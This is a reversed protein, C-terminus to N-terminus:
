YTQKEQQKKLVHNYIHKYTEFDAYFKDSNALKRVEEKFKDWFEPHCEERLEKWKQILHNLKNKPLHKYTNKLSTFSSFDDVITSFLDPDLNQIENFPIELLLRPGAWPLSKFEMSAYEGAEEPDENFNMYIELIKKNYNFIYAYECFYPFEIFDFYNSFGEDIPFEEKSNEFEKKNELINPNVQTLELIKKLLYIPFGRAILYYGTKKNEKIYGIMGRTPM